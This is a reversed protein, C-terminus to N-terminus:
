LFLLITSPILWGLMAISDVIALVTEPPAFFKDFVAYRISAIRTINRIPMPKQFTPFIPDIREDESPPITFAACTIHLYHSRRDHYRNRGSSM